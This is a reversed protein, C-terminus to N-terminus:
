GLRVEALPVPRLHWLPSGQHDFPAADPICHCNDPNVSDWVALVEAAPREGAHGWGLLKEQIEERTRGGMTWHLLRAPSVQTYPMRGLRGRYYQRPHFTGLTPTFSPQGQKPEAIIATDGCVKYVSIWQGQFQVPPAGELWARLEAANLLEEDADLQLLCSGERAVNSLDNRMEAELMLPHAKGGRYFDRQVVRLKDHVPEGVATQVARLFDGLPLDFPRGTWTVRDQDVGVIVEDSISWVSSIAGVALRWDYAVCFITSLSRSM